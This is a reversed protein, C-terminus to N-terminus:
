RAQPTDSEFLRSLQLTPPKILFCCIGIFSAWHLFISPPKPFWPSSRRSCVFFKSIFPKISYPYPYSAVLIVDIVPPPPPLAFQEFYNPQRAHVVFQMSARLCFLIFTRCSCYWDSYLPPAATSRLLFVVLCFLCASHFASCYLTCSFLSLM